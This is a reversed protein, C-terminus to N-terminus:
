RTVNAEIIHRLVNIFNNVNLNSNAWRTISNYMLRAMDLYYNLERLKDFEPCICGNTQMALERTSDYGTTILYLGYSLAELVSLPPEIAASSMAPYVFISAEELLSQKESPSLIQPILIVKDKVGIKEIIRKANHLWEISSRTSPFVIKLKMEKSEKLKKVIGILQTIPFRNNNVRGLYLIVPSKHQSIRGLDKVILPYAFFVNNKKVNLLKSALLYLEKSTTLIISPNYLRSTWKYLEKRRLVLLVKTVKSYRWRLIVDIINGEIKTTNGLFIFLQKYHEKLKKLIKALLFPSVILEILNSTIMAPIRNLIDDESLFSINIFIDKSNENFLIRLKPTENGKSYNFSILCTPIEMNNLLIALQQILRGGGETIPENAYRGLIISAVESMFFYVEAM